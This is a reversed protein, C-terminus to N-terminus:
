KYQLDLFKLRNLAKRNNEGDM